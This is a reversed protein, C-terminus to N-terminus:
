GFGASDVAAVGTGFGDAVVSDGPPGMLTPM